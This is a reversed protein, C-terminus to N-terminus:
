FPLDDHEDLGPTYKDAFSAFRDGPVIFVEFTRMPTPGGRTKKSGTYKIAVAQGIMNPSLLKKLWRNITVEMRGYGQPTNAPPAGVPFIIAPELVISESPPKDREFQRTEFKVVRGMIAEGVQTMGPQWFESLTPKQPQSSSVVEDFPNGAPVDTM